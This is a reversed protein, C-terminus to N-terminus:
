QSVIASYRGNENRISVPIRYRIEQQNLPDTAGTYGAMEEADFFHPYWRGQQDQSFTLIFAKNKNDTEDILERFPAITFSEEEDLNLDVTSQGTTQSINGPVRINVTVQKAPTKPLPRGSHRPALALLSAQQAQRVAQEYEREALPIQRRAQEFQHSQQSAALAAALDADFEDQPETTPAASSSAAASSSPSKAASPTEHITNFALNIVRKEKWDALNNLTIQNKEKPSVVLLDGPSVNAEAFYFGSKNNTLFLEAIDVDRWLSGHKYMNKLTENAIDNVYIFSIMGTNAASVPAGNARILKLTGRALPSDSTILIDEGSRNGIIIPGNAAGHIGAITLLMGIALIRKNM